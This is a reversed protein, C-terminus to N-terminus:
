WAASTFAAAAAAAAAAGGGGPAGDVLVHLGGELSVVGRREAPDPTAHRWALGRAVGV